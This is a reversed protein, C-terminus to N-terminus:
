KFSIIHHLKDTSPLNQLIPLSLKRVKRFNSKPRLNMWLQKLSTEDRQTCPGLDCSGHLCPRYDMVTKVNRKPFILANLTNYYIIKTKFLDKMIELSLSNSIKYMATALIQFNRDHVTFSEDKISLLEEFSSFYDKYVIRLAKELLKNYNTQRSHIIWTLSCYAFQLHKWPVKWSRKLCKSIRALVHTKKTLKNSM